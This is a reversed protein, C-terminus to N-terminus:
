TKVELRVRKHSSAGAAADSFRRFSVVGLFFGAAFFCFGEDRESESDSSLAPSSV